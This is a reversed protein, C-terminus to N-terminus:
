EHTLGEAQETGQGVSRLLESHHQDALAKSAVFVLALPWDICELVALGGVGVYFAVNRLDM